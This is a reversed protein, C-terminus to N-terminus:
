YGAPKVNTEFANSQVKLFALSTELEAVSRDVHDGDVYSNHDTTTKKAATTKDATPARTNIPPDRPTTRSTDRPIGILHNSVTPLLFDEFQLQNTSDFRVNTWVTPSTTSDTCPAEVTDRETGNVMRKLKGLCSLMEPPHTITRCNTGGFNPACTCSPRNNTCRGPYCYISDPRWSCLKTCSRGDSSLGYAKKEGGRDYECRTCRYNSPRVGEICETYAECNAVDRPCDVHRTESDLM